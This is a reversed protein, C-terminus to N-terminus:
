GLLFLFQGDAGGNRSKRGRRGQYCCRSLYDPKGLLIRFKWLMTLVDEAEVVCGLEVPSIDVRRSILLSSSQFLNEAATGAVVKCIM